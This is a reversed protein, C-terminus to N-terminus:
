KLNLLLWDLYAKSGGSLDLVLFEPVSYSHMQVVINEVNEIEEATTKILLLVEQASEIRGEWRYISQAGPLLSVCAAHRSAILSEAIRRAEEITACSSLILRINSRDPKM